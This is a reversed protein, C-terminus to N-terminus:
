GRGKTLPEDLTHTSPSFFFHRRILSSLAQRLDQDIGNDSPVQQTFAVAVHGLIM